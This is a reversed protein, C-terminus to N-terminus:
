RESYQSATDPLAIEFSGRRDNPAEADRYERNHQGSHLTLSGNEKEYLIANEKGGKTLLIGSM